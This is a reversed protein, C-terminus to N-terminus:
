ELEEHLSPWTGPETMSGSQHELSFSCKFKLLVEPLTLQPIQKVHVNINLNSNKTQNFLHTLLHHDNGFFWFALIIIVLGTIVGTLSTSSARSSFGLGILLARWRSSGSGCGSLWCGLGFLYSLSPAASTGGLARTTSITFSFGLGSEADKGKNWCCVHGAWAPGNTTKWLSFIFPIFSSSHAALTFELAM